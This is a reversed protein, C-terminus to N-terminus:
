LSSAGLPDPLPVPAEVLPVSRYQERLGKVITRCRDTLDKPSDTQMRVRSVVTGIDAGKFLYDDKGYVRMFFLEDDDQLGHWDRSARRYELRGGPLVGYTGTRPASQIRAVGEEPQKLILQSWVDIAALENWRENIEDIDLAYDVDLYELLHFLFLPLDAYAGATVNTIPSAGSIRPNLEGLYVEDTDLDILVDVEFFGTYGEKALQDGLRRVLTTARTRQQPTMAGPFVDNGCWGGPYPTLEGYGTLDVMFPGVITGHRTIVAEVALATNRIRKMIKSPQGALKDAYRNWDTEDAVFFTTKGSDGYPLQIVLDHGLGAGGTLGSLEAYTVPAGVVNPVSPAGALNGLRTTELKSDLRTRLSYSPLCLEYGLDACIAETEEDFFVAMVKPRGGRARLRTIVEENRLLYNTIEESSSFAQYQDRRPSIVRPHAGDWPDYYTVFNFSRVWRDLGLLNFPTPGFFYVPEENTRYFTRIESINRLAHTPKVTNEQSV